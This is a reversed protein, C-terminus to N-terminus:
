NGLRKRSIDSRTFVLGEVVKQGLIILHAIDGIYGLLVQQHILTTSWHRMGPYPVKEGMPLVPTVNRALSVGVSNMIHLPRERTSVIWSECLFLSATTTM